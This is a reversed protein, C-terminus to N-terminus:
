PSWERSRFERRSNGFQTGCGLLYVIAKEYKIVIDRITIFRYVPVKGGLALVEDKLLQFGEAPTLDTKRLQTPRVETEANLEDIFSQPTFIDPGSREFCGIFFTLLVVSITFYRFM